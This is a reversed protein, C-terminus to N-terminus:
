RPITGAGAADGRRLDEGAGSLPTWHSGSVPRATVTMFYKVRRGTDASSLRRAGDIPGSPLTPPLSAATVLRTSGPGAGNHRSGPLRRVTYEEAGRARADSGSARFPSQAVESVPDTRRRRPRDSGPQPDVPDRSWSLVCSCSWSFADSSEKEGPCTPVLPRGSELPSAHSFCTNSVKQGASSIV